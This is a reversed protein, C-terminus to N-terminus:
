FRLGVTVAARPGDGGQLIDNSRHFDYGGTAKAFLGRRKGWSLGGEIRILRDQRVAPVAAGFAPRADFRWNRLDFGAVARLDKAVPVSYDASWTTRRYTHRAASATIRDHTVGLAIWHFTAFRHRMRGGVSWGKGTGGAADNYDRWRHAAFTEIRNKGKEWAIGARLQTQNTELAEATILHRAHAAKLGIEVNAGLKRTVEGNVGYSINYDFVDADVELRFETSKGTASFGVKGTGGVGALNFDNPDIPNDTDNHTAAFAVEVDWGTEIGPATRDGPPDRNEQAERAMAPQVLAGLLLPACLTRAAPM